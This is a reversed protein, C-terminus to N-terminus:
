CEESYHPVLKARGSKIAAVIDSISKPKNEIEVGFLGSPTGAEHSDSGSQMPLSHTKAFSLAKKNYEAPTIGNQVEVGDILEPSVATQSTFWFAERFPHAQALYGGSARVLRSYEEVSAIRAIKPNGQLFDLGLGYTLFDMGGISYEWGFFVDLGIRQGAKKAEEYGRAFFRLKGEWSRAGSHRINGTFFHDTVVIGAYGRNKYALVQESATSIACASVESTHMHTEYLYM